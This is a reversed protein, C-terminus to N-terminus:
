KLVFAAWIIPALMCALVAWLVVTERRTISYAETLFREPHDIADVVENDAGHMEIVADRFAAQQVGRLPLHMDIGDATTIWFTGDSWRSSNIVSIRHIKDWAATQWWWRIGTRSVHINGFFYEYFEAFPLVLVLFAVELWGWHLLFFLFGSVYLFLLFLCLRQYRPVPVRIRRRPEEPSSM